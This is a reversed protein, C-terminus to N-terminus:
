HMRDDSLGMGIWLMEVKHYTRIPALEVRHDFMRQYQLPLEQGGQAMIIAANITSWCRNYMATIMLVITDVQMAMLHDMDLDMARMLMHQHVGTELFSIGALDPIFDPTVMDMFRTTGPM